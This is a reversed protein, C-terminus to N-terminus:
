YEVKYEENLKEIKFLEFSHQGEWNDEQRKSHEKLIKEAQKKNTFIGLISTREGCEICGVDVAVYYSM